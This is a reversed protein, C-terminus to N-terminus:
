YLAAVVRNEAVDGRVPNEDPPGRGADALLVARAQSAARRDEGVAAAPQYAVLRLHRDAFDAPAVPKGSQLGTHQAM